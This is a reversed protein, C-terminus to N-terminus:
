NLARGSRLSEPNCQLGWLGRRQLRATQEAARYRGESYHPWDWAWGAQVMSLSLDAAKSAGGSCIAVPRKQKDIARQVCRVPESGVLETLAVRSPRFVRMMTGNPAGCRVGREPADIGFLRVNEGDIAITDGDIVRGRGEIVRGTAASAQPQADSQYGCVALVVFAFALFRSKFAM